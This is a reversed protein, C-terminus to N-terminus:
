EDDMSIDGARATNEVTKIWWDSDLDNSDKPIELKRIEEAAKAFRIKQEEASIFPHILAAKLSEEQSLVPKILVGNKVQEIEVEAGEPINMQKLADFFTEPHNSDIKLHPMTTKRERRKRDVLIHTDKENIL